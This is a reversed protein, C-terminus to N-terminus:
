GFAEKAKECEVKKRVAQKSSLHTKSEIPQGAKTKFGELKPRLFFIRKLNQRCLEEAVFVCKVANEVSHTQFRDMRGENSM